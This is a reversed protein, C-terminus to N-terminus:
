YWLPYPAGTSSYVQAGNEDRLNVEVLFNSSPGKTMKTASLSGEPRKLHTTPPTRTGFKTSGFGKPYVAPRRFDFKNHFEFGTSLGYVRPNPDPYEPDPDPDVTEYGFGYGHGDRASTANDYVFIHEEDPYFENLLDM